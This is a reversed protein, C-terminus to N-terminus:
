AESITRGNKINKKLFTGFSSTMPQDMEHSRKLWLDGGGISLLKLNGSYDEPSVSNHTGDSTCQLSPSFSPSPPLTFHHLHHSKKRREKLTFLCLTVTSDRTM